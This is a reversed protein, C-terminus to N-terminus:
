GQREQGACLPPHRIDYMVRLFTSYPLPMRVSGRMCAHMRVSAESASPSLENMQQERLAAAEAATMELCIVYAQIGFGSTAVASEPTMTAVLGVDRRSLSVIKRGLQSPLVTDPM